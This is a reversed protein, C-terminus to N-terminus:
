NVQLSMRNGYDIGCFTCHTGLIQARFMPEEEGNSVRVKREKARANQFESWKQYGKLRENVQFWVQVVRKHLGIEKGLVECETMSPTKYDAFVCKMMHVQLPTLHTRYRKNSTPSKSLQAGMQSPTPSAFAFLLDEPSEVPMDDGGESAMPYPSM